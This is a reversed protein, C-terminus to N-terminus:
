PRVSLLIAPTSPPLPIQGRIGYSSSDELTYARVPTVKSPRTRDQAKDQAKDHAKDDGARPQADDQLSDALVTDILLVAHPDVAPDTARLTAILETAAISPRNTSADGIAQRLASIPVDVDQFRPGTPTPAASTDSAAPRRAGRTRYRPPALLSRDEVSVMATRLSQNSPEPWRKVEVVAVCAILATTAIAWKSWRWAWRPDLLAQWDLWALRRRTVRIAPAQRTRRSAALIRATLTGPIDSSAQAAAILRHELIREAAPQNSKTLEAAADADAASLQGAIWRDLLREQAPSLGRRDRQQHSIAVLLARDIIALELPGGPSAVDPEEPTGSMLRTKDYTARRIHM